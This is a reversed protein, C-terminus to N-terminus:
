AFLASYLNFLFFALLQNFRAFETLDVTLKGDLDVNIVFLICADSALLNM